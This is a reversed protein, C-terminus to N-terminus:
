VLSINDVPHIINTHGLYAQVYPESIPLEEYERWKVWLHQLFIKIMKRRAMRDIHSDTYKMPWPSDKDEVPEPYLRRLRSKEEYYIDIYLPTQHKVFSDAVTFLIGSLKKNSPSVEGKKAYDRKGDRVGYGSYRWLKSVTAFKGIDDIQAVLKATTRSEGLGKISTLWEWINGAQRGFLIMQKEYIKIMEDLRLDELYAYEMGEDMQSKGNEISSIRLLHRKRMEVLEDWMLYAQWLRINKRPIPDPRQDEPKSGNKRSM